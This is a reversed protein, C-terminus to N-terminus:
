RHLSRVEATARYLGTSMAAFEMRARQFLRAKLHIENTEDGTRVSIAAQCQVSARSLGTLTKAYLHQMAPDPIPPAARATGVDAGLTICAQKMAPYQKVAAAQMANGLQTTVATLAAGGPGKAWRKIRPKLGPRSHLADKAAGHSTVTAKSTTGHSAQTPAASPAAAGTEAAPAGSGVVAAHHVQDAPASLVAAMVGAVVLCLGVATAVALM